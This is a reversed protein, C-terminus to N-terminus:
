QFDTSYIRKRYYFKLVPHRNEMEMWALAQRPAHEKWKPRYVEMRNIPVVGIVKGSRKIVFVRYVPEDSKINPRGQPAPRTGQPSASEPAAARAKRSYVAENDVAPYEGELPPLAPEVAADPPANLDNENFTVPPEITKLSVKPSGDNADGPKILYYGKPISVNNYHINQTIRALAYPSYEKKYRNFYDGLEAPDVDIYDRPNPTYYKQPPDTGAKGQTSDPDDFLGVRGSSAQTWDGDWALASASIAVLLIMVGLVCLQRM